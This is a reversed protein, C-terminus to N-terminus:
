LPFGVGGDGDVPAFAARTHTGAWGAWGALGPGRMPFLAWSSMWGELWGVVAAKSTAERVRCPVESSPVESALLNFYSIFVDLIISLYSPPM